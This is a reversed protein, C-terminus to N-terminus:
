ACRSSSARGPLRARDQAAPEPPSALRRGLLLFLLRGFSGESQGLGAELLARAARMGNSGVGHCLGGDVSSPM